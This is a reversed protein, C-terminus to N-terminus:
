TRGAACRERWATRLLLLLNDAFRPGDCLPSRALRERLGARLAALRELDGALEAAIEVSRRPDTAALDSLGVNALHTLSQRGAFTEGPCTVVPVGMWLAECTTTCGSYPFPDLALDARNYQGLFEAQPTPGNLELREAAVGNAAFLEVFRQRTAADGLGRFQSLFRSGPVRRLIEAWLAVVPPTIKAPNNFSAFTVYGNTRAPLPGIPPAHAPPDYCIYGDPMRLVRERYHAEAGEPVLFRDALIYDM